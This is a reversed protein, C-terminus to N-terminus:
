VHDLGARRRLVRVEAPSLRRWRGPRLNGLRLPGIAIRRLREVPYGLAECMRRIQRKRGEELTLHLVSSGQGVQLLEAQEARALGDELTVGQLLRSVASQTVEGRVWVEYVKPVSHRPHTLRHALGGDNTLLVLGESDSDLRGVPYVREPVPVLDLVTKRGHEDRASTIVGVPKHLAYYALGEPRISVAKGDVSVKDRPGVKQGLVAPRGNVSVRGDRILHEISRRSGVGAHALAKQLREPQSRSARVQSMEGNYCPAGACAGLGAPPNM